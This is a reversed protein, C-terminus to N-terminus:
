KLCTKLVIETSSNHLLLNNAESYHICMEINYAKEDVLMALETATLGNKRRYERIRNM